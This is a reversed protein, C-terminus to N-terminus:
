QIRELFAMDLLTAVLAVAASEHADYATSYPNHLEQIAEAVPVGDCLLAWLHRERANLTYQEGTISNLLVTREGRTSSIIHKPARLRVSPSPHRSFFLSLDPYMITTAEVFSGYAIPGPM